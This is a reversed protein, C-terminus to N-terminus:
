NVALRLGVFTLAVGLVVSIGSYAIANWVEGREIWALVEASFTSFTTFGGCFGGVLLLRLDANM